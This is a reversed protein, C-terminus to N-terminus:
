NRLATFNVGSAREWPVVEPDSRDKSKTSKGPLLILSKTHGGGYDLSVIVPGSKCM